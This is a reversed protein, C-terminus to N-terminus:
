QPKEWHTPKKWYELAENQALEANQHTRGSVWSGDIVAIWLVKRRGQKAADARLVTGDPMKTWWWMQRREWKWIIKGETM